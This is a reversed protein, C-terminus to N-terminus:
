IAYEVSNIVLCHDDIWYIQMTEYEGWDGTYVRTPEKQIRLLPTDVVPKECVEVLTNGGMAGHDSDIVQAYHSGDPSDITRVVTNIGLNGFVANVLLLFAIPLVMLGSLVLATIKPLLLKVRKITLIGCAVVYIALWLATRGELCFLSNIMSLPLTAALIIQLIKGENTRKRCLLVLSASLVALVFTFAPLCYVTLDYGLTGCILMGAPYCITLFLQLCILITTLRKM